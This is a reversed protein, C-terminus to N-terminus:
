RRRLHIGWGLLVLGMLAAPLWRLLQDGTQPLRGFPTSAATSPTDSSPEPDDTDSTGAQVPGAKPRATVEYNWSETEVDWEPLSVLFPLSTYTAGRFRVEHGVVLYLGRTLGAMGEFSATGFSTTMVSALPEPGGAKVLETLRRALLLWGEQGKADSVDLGEDSLADALTVSGDDGLEGVRYLDFRVAPIPTDGLFLELSLSVPDDAPEPSAMAPSAIAGLWCALSLIIVLILRCRRM